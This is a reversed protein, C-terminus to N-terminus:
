FGFADGLGSVGFVGVRGTSITVAHSPEPQLFFGSHLWLKWTMEGTKDM